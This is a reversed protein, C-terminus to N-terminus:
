PKAAAAKRTGTAKKRTAAAKKAPTPVDTGDLTQVGLAEERLRRIRDRQDALYQEAFDGDVFAAQEAKLIHVRTWDDTDKIPDHRIKDVSTKIVVYVEDGKHFALPEFRMAERLGGAAGPIEIAAGRVSNGEFDGLPKTVLRALEDDNM